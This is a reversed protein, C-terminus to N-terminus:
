AKENKEMDAGSYLDEPAMDEYIVRITERSAFKLEDMTNVIAEALEKKQEPTRGEKLQIRVFPM